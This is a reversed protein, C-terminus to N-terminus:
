SPAETSPDLALRLERTIELNPRFGTSGIIQDISGLTHGDEGTVLLGDEIAQVRAICPGTRRLQHRWLEYSRDVRARAV